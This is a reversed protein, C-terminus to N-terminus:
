EARLALIPDVRMARQAPVYCAALAVIMLFATVVGFTLPDHSSVGFLQNVMLRTLGAAAALGAASGALAMRFGFGLVLRLIAPRDAGM